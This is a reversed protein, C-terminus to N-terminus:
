RRGEVVRSTARRNGRHRPRHWGGSAATDDISAAIDNAHAIGIRRQVLMRRTLKYRVIQGSGSVPILVAHELPFICDGVIPAALTEVSAYRGSSLRIAESVLKM